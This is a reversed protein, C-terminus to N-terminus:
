LEAEPTAEYAGPLIAVPELGNEIRKPNAREICSRCIPQRVGAEDRHSPVRTPSFTFLQRCAFCDGTVFVYGTM